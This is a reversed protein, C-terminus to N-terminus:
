DSKKLFYLAILGVVICGVAIDPKGRSFQIIAAAFGAIAWVLCGFKVPM